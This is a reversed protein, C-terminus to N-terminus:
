SNMLALAVAVICAHPNGPNKLGGTGGHAEAIKEM